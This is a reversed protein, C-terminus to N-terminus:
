NAKFYQQKLINFKSAKKNNKLGLREGSKPNVLYYGLTVEVSDGAQLADSFSITRNENAGIMSDLIVENALWPMSPEGDRGIVRLFQNSKLPIAKENRIINVKLEAVRLPHTLLKHPSNNKISVDFGNATKSFSLDIYKGLMDSHMVSGAFGHFSHTLSERITTASGEVKPMHCSICNEGNSTIGEDDTKCLDFGHSNQRHSHCGMCVKGDYFMESSYDIDHYPSGESKKVMGLWSSKTKYKIVEGKKDAQASYLYKKNDGYVNKNVSTHEEINTITHCTICSIGETSSLPDAVNPAHCEACTAYGNEKEKLPHINWIAAHIEDKAVSSNKHM